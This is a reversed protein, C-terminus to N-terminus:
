RGITIVPQLVSGQRAPPLKLHDLQRKKAAIAQAPEQGSYGQDILSVEAVNGTAADIERALHEVQARDHEDTTTVLLPLL